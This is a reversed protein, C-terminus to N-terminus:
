AAPGRDPREREARHAHARRLGQPAPRRRGQGPVDGRRGGPADNGPRHRPRQRRLHRREGGDPSRHVRARRATRHGRCRAGRAGGSRSRVGPGRRPDRVRGRGSPRRHRQRADSRRSPQLDGGATRRRGRPRPHRQRGQVQRPRHVADLGRRRQPGSPRHGAQRPRAAAFPQSAAHPPRPRGPQGPKRPAHPRHRGQRRRVLHGRRPEREVAAVAVRRRPPPLPQHLDARRRERRVAHDRLHARPRGPAHVGRHSGGPAGRTVM